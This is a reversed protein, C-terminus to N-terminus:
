MEGDFGGCGKPAAAATAPQMVVLVVVCGELFMHFVYM